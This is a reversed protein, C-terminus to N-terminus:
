VIYVLKFKALIGSSLMNYAPGQANGMASGNNGAPQSYPVTTAMSSTQSIGPGQYSGQRGCLSFFFTLLNPQSSDLKFKRRLSLSHLSILPYCHFSCFVCFRVSIINPLRNSGHEKIRTSFVLCTSYRYTVTFLVTCLMDRILCVARGFSQLHAHLM